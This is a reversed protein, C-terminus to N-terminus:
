IVTADITFISIVLEYIYFTIAGDVVDTYCINLLAMNRYEIPLCALLGDPLHGGPDTGKCWPIM